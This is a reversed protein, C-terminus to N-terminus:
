PEFDDETITPGGPVRYPPFWRLADEVAESRSNYIYVRQLSVPQFDRVFHRLVKNDLPQVVYQCGNTEDDASTVLPIVNYM